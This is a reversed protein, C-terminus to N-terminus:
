RCIELCSGEFIERLLKIRNLMPQRKIKLIGFFYITLFTAVLSLFVVPDGARSGGLEAVQQFERLGEDHVQDDLVHFLHHGRKRQGAPYPELLSEFDAPAFRMRRDVAPMVVEGGALTAFAREVCDVADLDLGIAARLERETLITIIPM